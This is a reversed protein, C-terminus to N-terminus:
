KAAAIDAKLVDLLSQNVELELNAYSGLKELLTAKDDKFVDPRNFSGPLHSKLGWSASDNWIEEAIPDQVYKYSWLSWSWGNRGYFDLTYAVADYAWPADFIASFSGVFWPVNQKEQTTKFYMDYLDIVGKYSDFDRAGWEFLHTSYVVGEWGYKAPLPLSDMGKFGDHIVLLHDDGNARIAKVLKDYMDDRAKPSPASMPEALLSYAAVINRNIFRSSLEEWLQVTLQQYLDSGYLLAEGSYDNQGGPCEQIDIVAYVGWTECWDLLAEIRTFTAENWVLETPPAMHSGKTLARYGIPVRVLNFGQESLWQIDKEQIWAGLYTDFLEDRDDTGFRTELKQYLPMDSDTYIAPLYKEYETIYAASSADDLEAIVSDKFLQLWADDSLVNGDDDEVSVMGSVNAPGLSELIPRILEVIDLDLAVVFARAFISYDVLTMWTEHYLYGGLNVGKLLVVNGDKDVINMGDAHLRSVHEEVVDANVVDDGPVDASVDSVPVDVDIVDPQSTDPPPENTEGCATMFVLASLLAFFTSLSRPLM